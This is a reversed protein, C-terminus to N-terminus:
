LPSTTRRDGLSVATPFVVVVVMRLDSYYIGVFSNRCWYRNGTFTPSLGFLQKIAVDTGLCHNIKVVIGFCPQGHYSFVM